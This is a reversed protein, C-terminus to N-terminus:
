GARVVVALVVRGARSAWRQARREVLRVGNARVGSVAPGGPGGCEVLQVREDRGALSPGSPGGPVGSSKVKPEEVRADVLGAVGRPREGPGSPRGQRVRCLSSVGM